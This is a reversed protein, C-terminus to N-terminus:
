FSVIKIRKQSFVFVWWVGAVGGGENEEISYVLKTPFRLSELLNQSKENSSKESNLSIPIRSDGCFQILRVEETPSPDPTDQPTPSSSGPIFDWIPHPM